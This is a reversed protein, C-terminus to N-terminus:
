FTEEEELVLNRLGFYVITATLMEDHEGTVVYSLKGNKRNLVWVTENRANFHLQYAGKQIELKAAEVLKSFM